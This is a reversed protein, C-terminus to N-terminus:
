IRLKIAISHVLHYYYDFIATIICNTITIRLTWYWITYTYPVSPQITYTYSICRARYLICMRYLVPRVLRAINSIKDLSKVLEKKVLTQIDQMIFSLKYTALELFVVKCACFPSMTDLLKRVPREKIRHIKLSLCKM